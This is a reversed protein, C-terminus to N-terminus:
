GSSLFINIYESFAARVQKVSLGFDSLSYQPHGHKHKKNTDMYLQIQRRFQESFPRNSTQYIYEITGVPDRIFDTYKINILLAPDEGNRHTKHFKVMRSAHLAMSSLGFQGWQLRDVQTFDFRLGALTLMFACWSPVSEVPDRHLLVITSDPFEQSLSGLFLSHHISKSVWHYPLHNDQQHPSSLMQLNAKFYQYASEKHTTNVYWTGYGDQYKFPHNDIFLSYGPLMGYDMFLLMDEEPELCNLTHFKNIESFFNPSLYFNGELDHQQKAARPDIPDSKNRRVPLGDWPNIKTEWYLLPRSLPDKAMLGLMFTSGTRFFGSIFLPAEIQIDRVLPYANLYSITSNFHHFAESILTAEIIRGLLTLPRNNLMRLYLRFGEEIENEGFMETAKSSALQIDKFFDEDDKPSLYVSSLMWGFFSSKLMDIGFIHQNFRQLWNFFRVPARLQIPNNPHNASIPITSEILSMTILLVTFCGIAIALCDSSSCARQRRQQQQSAIKTGNTAINM